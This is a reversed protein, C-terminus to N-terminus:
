VISFTQIQLDYVLSTFFYHWSWFVNSYNMNKFARLRRRGVFQFVLQRVNRESAFQCLNCLELPLLNSNDSSESKWKAWVHYKLQWIFNVLSHLNTWFRLSRIFFKHFSIDLNLAFLKLFDWSLLLMKAEMFFIFLTVILNSNPAPTLCCHWALNELTWLVPYIMVRINCPRCEKSMQVTSIQHFQFTCFRKYPSMNSTKNDNKLISSAIAFKM